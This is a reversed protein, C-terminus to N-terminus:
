DAPLFSLWYDWARKVPHPQLNFKAAQEAEGPKPPSVRGRRSLPVIPNFDHVQYKLKVIFNYM